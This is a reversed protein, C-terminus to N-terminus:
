PNENEGEKKIKEKIKEESLTNSQAVTLGLVAAIIAVWLGAEQATMLGYFVALPQLAIIIQYVRKRKEPTLIDELQQIM